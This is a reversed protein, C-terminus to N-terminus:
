HPAACAILMCCGFVSVMALYKGMVIGSVSIPSTLLLQDTKTRKEEAFSRMTLVPVVLLLIVSIGTLAVSFHPFGQVINYAVFFIGMFILVGTMFIAGTMNHFFSRFERKFIATM